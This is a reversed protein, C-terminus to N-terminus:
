NDYINHINCLLSRFNGGGRYILRVNDTNYLIMQGAIFTIYAIVVTIGIPKSPIFSKKHISFYAGLTFFFLATGNPIIGKSIPLLEILYVVGLIGLLMSFHRFYKHELKFISLLIPTFLTIIFLDRIFWLAFNYPMGTNHYNWFALLWDKFSYDAIVTYEPKSQMNFVLQICLFFLIYLLNWIFYPVLLTQIRKKIKTWYTAGDFTEVKYFFLYGSFMFFLPVATRAIIQSFFYQVGGILSYSHEANIISYEGIHAHICVVAVMLPFRLWTIVDLEKTTATM